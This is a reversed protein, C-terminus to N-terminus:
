KCANWNGCGAGGAWLQAAAYDEQAPTWTTIDAPLGWHGGWALAFQWKGFYGNGTNIGYTCHSERQCIWEPPLLSPAAASVTVEATPPSTVPSAGPPAPNNKAHNEAAAWICADRRQMDARVARDAAAVANVEQVRM